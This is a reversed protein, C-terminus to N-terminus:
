RYAAPLPLIFRTPMAIKSTVIAVSRETVVAGIQGADCDVVVFESCSFSVASSGSKLLETMGLASVQFLEL